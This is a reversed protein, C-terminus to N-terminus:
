IKCTFLSNNLKLDSCPTDGIMQILCSPLPLTLVKCNYSPRAKSKQKSISELSSKIREMKTFYHLILFKIEINVELLMKRLMSSYKSNPSKEMRPNLRM